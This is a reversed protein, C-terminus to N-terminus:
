RLPIPPLSGHTSRVQKDAARGVGIPTIHEAMANRINLLQGYLKEKRKTLDKYAKKSGLARARKICEEMNNLGDDAKELKALLQGAKGAKGKRKNELMWNGIWRKVFWGESFEKWWQEAEIKGNIKKEYGFCKLVLKKTAKLWYQAAEKAEQKTKINEVAYLEECDTLDYQTSADQTAIPNSVTSLPPPVNRDNRITEEYSPPADKPVPPVAPPLDPPMHKATNQYSDLPPASPTFDRRREEGCGVLWPLLLGIHINTRICQQKRYILRLYFSLLEIATTIANTLM